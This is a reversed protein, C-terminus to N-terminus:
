VCGVGGTAEVWRCSVVAVIYTIESVPCNYKLLFNFFSVFLFLAILHARINLKMGTAFIIAYGLTNTIDLSM